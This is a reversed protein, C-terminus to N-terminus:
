PAHPTQYQILDSLYSDVAFAVLCALLFAWVTAGLMAAPVLKRGVLVVAWLLWFVVLVCGLGVQVLADSKRITGAYPEDGMNRLVVGLSAVTLVAQVVGMWWTASRPAPREGAFGLNAYDIPTRPEPRRAEVQDEM